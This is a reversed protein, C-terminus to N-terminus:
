RFKQTESSSSPVSTSFIQQRHPQLTTPSLTKRSPATAYFGNRCNRGFVLFFALLVLTVALLASLTYISTDLGSFFSFFSFFGMNSRANTPDASPEARGLDADLPDYHSLLLSFGLHSTVLGRRLRSADASCQEGLSRVSLVVEDRPGFILIVVRLHLDKGAEIVAPSVGDFFTSDGLQRGRGSGETVWEGLSAASAALLYSDGFSSLSHSTLLRRFRLVDVMVADASIAAIEVDTPLDGSSGSSLSSQVDKVVLQQVLENYAADVHAQQIWDNHSDETRRLLMTVSIACKYQTAADNYAGCLDTVDEQQSILPKTSPSPRLRRRHTVAPQALKRDRRVSEAIPPLRKATALSSGTVDAYSVNSIFVASDSLQPDWLKTSMQIRAPGSGFVKGEVFRSIMDLAIAPEDMPVMHGCNLVILIFLTQKDLIRFVFQSRSVL